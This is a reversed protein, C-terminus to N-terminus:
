ALESEYNDIENKAFEIAEELSGFSFDDNFPEGLFEDTYFVKGFRTDHTYIFVKYNRYIIKEALNDAPSTLNQNTMTNEQEINKLKDLPLLAYRLNLTLNIICFFDIKSNNKFKISCFQPTLLRTQFLDAWVAARHAEFNLFKDSHPDEM